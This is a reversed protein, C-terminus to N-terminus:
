VAPHTTRTQSTSYLTAVISSLNLAAVDVLDADGHYQITDTVLGAAARVPEFQLYSNSLTASAAPATLGLLGYLQPDPRMAILNGGDNEVWDQLMTAQGATLAMQGLIAVDAAQLAARDITSIDRLAFENLGEARLIEAYYTTFPNATSTIVLIPSRAAANPDQIAGPVAALGIFVSFLALCRRRAGM